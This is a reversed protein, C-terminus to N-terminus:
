RHEVTFTRPGLAIRDGACLDQSQVPLDNLFTGNKSDLDVVQVLAARRELRCHQRSVGKDRVEIDAGSRGLSKPLEAIPIVIDDQDHSTLTLIDTEGWPDGRSQLAEQIGTRHRKHMQQVTPAAPLHDLATKLREILREATDGANGDERSSRNTDINDPQM